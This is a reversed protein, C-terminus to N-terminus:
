SEPAVRRFEVGPGLLLWFAGREGAPMGVSGANLIRLSGLTREFQAHTHGCVVIAANVGAFMPRIEDDPTNRRFIEVDNRPTAHCFLIEGLGLIDVSLTAPWTRLAREQDPTIQAATERMAPRYAEPVTTMEEGALHALIEREGNGLIYRTPLDLSLVRDLAESSQMGPMVDGGIVVLDVGAARVDRLVADLAPLNGHIDYLAALRM